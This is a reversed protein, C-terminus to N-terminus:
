RATATKPTAKAWASGTGPIIALLRMKCYQAVDQRRWVDEGSTEDKRSRETKNMAKVLVVCLLMVSDNAPTIVM